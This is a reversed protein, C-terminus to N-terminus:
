AAKVKKKRTIQTVKETKPQAETEPEGILWGLSFLDATSIEAKGLEEITLMRCGDLTIEEKLLETFERSFDVMKAVPVKWQEPEDETSTKEGLRKILETRLDETRQYEKDAAEIARKLDYAVPLPLSQTALRDIPNPTEPTLREFTNRIEQLTTTIM